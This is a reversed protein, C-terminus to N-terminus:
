TKVLKEDKLGGIVQKFKAWMEIRLLKKITARIQIGIYKATNYLFATKRRM